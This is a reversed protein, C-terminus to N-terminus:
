PLFLIDHTGVRRMFYSEGIIQFTFRYNMTVSGEWLGDHGRLKHVRLSPHRMDTILFELKTDTQKQLSLPMKQYDRVFQKTFELKM